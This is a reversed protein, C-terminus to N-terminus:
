RKPLPIRFLSRSAGGNVLVFAHKFNGDRDFLHVVKTKRSQAAINGHRDIAIAGIEGLTDNDAVEGLIRDVVGDRGLRLITDGDTLWVRGEGDVKPEVNSIAPRDKDLRADFSYKPLGSPEMMTMSPVGNFDFVLIDHGPASAIGSPYNPERGWANELDICRNFSGDQNFIQVQKQINDLVLVEGTDGVCMSEPSFLTRPYNEFSEEITWLKLGKADHRSVSNTMTNESHECALVVFGGDSCGAICKVAPSNFRLLRTLSQHKTAIRWASVKGDANTLTAVFTNGGVFAISGWDSDKPQAVDLPITAVNKGLTDVLLFTSPTGSEHQIFGINGEVEFDFGSHLNRIPHKQQVKAPKLMISEYSANSETARSPSPPEVTSQIESIEKDILHRSKEKVNWNGNANQSVEFNVRVKDGSKSTIVRPHIAEEM